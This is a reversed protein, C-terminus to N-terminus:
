KMIKYFGNGYNVLDNLSTIEALQMHNQYVTARGRDIFVDSYVTPTTTIGFLYEERTMASLSSNTENFAQGKYFLQTVDIPFEGYIDNSVFRTSGTYTRFFLGLQPDPNTLNIVELDDGGIVYNIPNLNNDSIVRDVSTYTNGQYDDVIESSMNFMPIYKNVLNYSKVEDIRDNTYASISIGPEFYNNLPKNPWRIDPEYINQSILPVPSYNGMFPFNLGLNTLKTNLEKYSKPDLPLGDYAEYEIDKAIGMDDTDQTIFVNITFAKDILGKSNIGNAFTNGSLFWRYTGWTPKDRSIYDELLIKKKYIQM